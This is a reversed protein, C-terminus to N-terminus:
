KACRFGLFQARSEPALRFRNTARETRPDGGGWSGGRLVRKPERSKGDYSAYLTATWEWVNGAMDLVGDKSAGAPFGGVPATEPWGDASAYMPAPAPFHKAVLNAPCETGCANLRTADPASDGWPFKRGLAGGRAAYEWEEETPLRKGLWACYAAAQTFDVCNIPHALRPEPHRWNCSSRFNGRENAYSEPESCKGAAVCAGYDAVTVEHKDLRFPAVTVEHVPKESPSADSDESGMAFGGGPIDVMNDMPRAPGGCKGIGACAVALALLPALTRCNRCAIAM